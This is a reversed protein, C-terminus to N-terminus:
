SRVIPRYENYAAWSFYLFLVFFLLNIVIRSPTWIYQRHKLKILLENKGTIEDIVTSFEYGPLLNSDVQKIGSFSLIYGEDTPTIPKRESPKIAKNKKYLRSIIKEQVSSLDTM